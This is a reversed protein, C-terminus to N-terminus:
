YYASHTIHITVQEADGETVTVAHIYGESNWLNAYFKGEEEIFISYNGPPLAAEFFGEADTKVKALRQSQINIHFGGGQHEAETRHTYEHIHVARVVPYRFCSSELAGPM